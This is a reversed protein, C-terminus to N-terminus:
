RGAVIPPRCHWRADRANAVTLLQERRYIRRGDSHVEFPIREAAVLQNLRAVGVGVLEAAATAGVWYSSEEDFGVRSSRLGLALMEADARSVRRLQNVPGALLRGAEIHRVLIRRSCGVIHAAEELTVGDVPSM